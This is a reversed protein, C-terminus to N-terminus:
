EGDSPVYGYLGRVSVEGSRIVERRGDAYRVVLGFQDDIDEAFARERRDRWLLQIEQGLTACDRRYKHLYPDLDGGLDAMLRRLAAIMAAALEPRSVPRGLAACLSTAMAAVDPSFDEPTQSVNIGVGIVLSQVAGTEGELAVETLIGAIKKQHLILDNTWKIQPRVQCVAEVADCMAVATLATVPMLQGPSLSPRFLASLYVGKGRPSQFSREQRGRGGSQYEAVAFTGDAAGALAERKLYSNTSDVEELCRLAAVEVGIVQLARGIERETLADPRDVLAYGLGTRAEITYGAARLASVAKWVAARSIGLQQSIEEGSLYAGAHTQLLEYVQDKSIPFAEERCPKCFSEM